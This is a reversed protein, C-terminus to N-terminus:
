ATTILLGINIGVEESGTVEEWLLDVGPGCFPGRENWARASVDWVGDRSEPRPDALCATGYM